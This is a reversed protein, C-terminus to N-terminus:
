RRASVVLGLDDGLRAHPGDIPQLGHARAAAAVRALAYDPTGAGITLVPIGLSAALDAPGLVLAELGCGVAAVREAEALGRATEIQAELGTGEPLLAAAASVDEPSEVKPLVVVDPRAEAAARLDDEWWPTGRGNVRIATTPALRGRHVAAVALERAREKDAPAVADELDLILADAPLEQAKKLARENAGPMYLVSRLLPPSAQFDSEAM